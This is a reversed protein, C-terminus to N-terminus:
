KPQWFWVNFKPSYEEVYKKSYRTWTSPTLTDVGLKECLYARIKNKWENSPPVLNNLICGTLLDCLRILQYQELRSNVEAIYNLTPYPTGTYFESKMLEVFRDGSCRHVKDVLLTAHFINETNHKVLLEAFKKYRRAEEIKIPEDPKGFKNLDSLNLDVAVARYWSTSEFFAEILKRANSYNRETYCNNYKEEIVNGLKDKFPAVSRIENMRRHLYKSHPNFLAGLVMWRKTQVDYSEDFYILM